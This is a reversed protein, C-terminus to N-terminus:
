AGGGPMTQCLVMIEPPDEETFSPHEVWVRVAGTRSEIDADVIVADVPLGSSTRFNRHVGETLLGLRGCLMSQGIAVFRRKVPIGGV